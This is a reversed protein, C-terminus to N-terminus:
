FYKEEIYEKLIPNDEGYYKKLLETVQKTNVERYSYKELLERMFTDIKERGYKEELRSYMSAGCFYVFYTYDSDSKYEDYAKTIIGSYEKLEPNALYTALSEDIWPEKYSNNGVLSYFWQHMIEHALYNVGFEGNTVLAMQPYEMGKMEMQVEVVNFNNYPYKGLRDNLEHIIEKAIKLAEKGEKEHGIHFYSNITIGDISESYEKYSNGIMLTFDRVANAKYEYTITKNNNYQINKRDGTAIVSYEKPITISVNYNAIKSYFCEGVSFYPYYQFKGNEYPCLIPICNGLYFDTKNEGIKQYGYRADLNPIYAKYKMSITITTNPKLLEKLQIYFITKDEERYFRLEEKKNFDKIESIESINGNELNYFASPYDRFYIKNWEDTSDNIIDIILEITYCKNKEDLFINAKYNNKIKDKEYIDCESSEIFINKTNFKINEEILFIVMMIIMIVVIFILFKIGKNRMLKGWIICDM